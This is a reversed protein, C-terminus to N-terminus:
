GRNKFQPRIASGYNDLDALISRVKGEPYSVNWLQFGDLVGKEKAVAIVGSMDSLWATAAIHAWSSATLPRIQGDVVRVVFLEYTDGLEDVTAAVAIMKGDPSWSPSLVRFPLNDSRTVLEREGAADTDAIIVSSVKREGDGRVFAFQKMDPSFAVAVGINERLKQPVGGFVPMRYLAGDRQEDSAVVYYLSSGDPSM